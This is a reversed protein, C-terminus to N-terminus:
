FFNVLFYRSSFAAKDSSMEIGKDFPTCTSHPKARVVHTLKRRSTLSLVGRAIVFVSSFVVLSSV